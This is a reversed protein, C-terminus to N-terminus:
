VTLVLEQLQMVYKLLPVLLILVAIVILLALQIWVLERAIRIMREQVAQPVVVVVVTQLVLQAHLVDEEEM